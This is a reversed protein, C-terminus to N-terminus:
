LGCLACLFVFAKKSNKFLWFRFVPKSAHFRLFTEYKSLFPLKDLDNCYQGADEITELCANAGAELSLATFVVTARVSRAVQEFHHDPGAMTATLAHGCADAFLTRFLRQNEKVPVMKM